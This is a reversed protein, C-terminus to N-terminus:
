RNMIVELSEQKQKNNTIVDSEVRIRSGNELNARNRTLLLVKRKSQTDEYPIITFYKKMELPKKDHSYLSVDPMGVFSDIPHDLVIALTEGPYLPRILTEGNLGNSCEVDINPITKVYPRLDCGLDSSTAAPAVPNVKPPVQPQPPPSNVVAGQVESSAAGYEMIDQGNVVKGVRVYTAEKTGPINPLFLEYPYYGQEISSGANPTDTKVNFARILKFTSGDPKEFEIFRDEECKNIIRGHGNTGGECFALIVAENPEGTRFKVLNYNNDILTPNVLKGELDIPVESVPPSTPPSVLTPPTPEPQPLPSPPSIVTGNRNGRAGINTSAIQYLNGNNDYGYLIIIEFGEPIREGISIKRYNNCNDANQAVGFLNSLKVGDGPGNFGRRYNLKVTDGNVYSVNNIVLELNGRKLGDESILLEHESDSNGTRCHNYGSCAITANAYESPTNCAPEGNCSRGGHSSEGGSNGGNGSHSGPSSGGLFIGFQSNNQNYINEVKNSDNHNKNLIHYSLIGGSLGLSLCVAAYAGAKKISDWYKWDSIKRDTM